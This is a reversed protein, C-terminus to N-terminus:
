TRFGASTNDTAQRIFPPQEHEDSLVNTLTTWMM